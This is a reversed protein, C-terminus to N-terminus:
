PKSVRRKAEIKTIPVVVCPGGAARWFLLSPLLETPDSHVRVVYSIDDELQERRNRVVSSGAFAPHAFMSSHENIIGGEKQQWTHKKKMKAGIRVHCVLMSILQFHQVKRLPYQSDVKGTRFFAFFFWCVCRLLASNHHIIRHVVIKAGGSYGDRVKHSGNPYVEQTGGADGGWIM